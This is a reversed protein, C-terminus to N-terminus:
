SAANRKMMRIVEDKAALERKYKDETEKALEEKKGQLKSTEVIYWEKLETTAYEYHTSYKSVGLVVWISINILLRLVNDWNFNLFLQGAVFSLLLTQSFIRISNKLVAETLFEKESRRKAETDVRLMEQYKGIVEWIVRKGQKIGELGFTNSVVIALIAPIFTLIVWVVWDLWNYQTFDRLVISGGTFSMVGIAAYLIICFSITIWNASETIKERLTQM